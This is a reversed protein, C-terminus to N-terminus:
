KVPGWLERARLAADIFNDLGDWSVLVVTELDGSCVVLESMLVLCRDNKVIRANSNNFQIETIAPLEPNRIDLTSM